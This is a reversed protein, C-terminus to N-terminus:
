RAPDWFGAEEWYGVGALGIIQAVRLRADNKVENRSTTPPDALLDLLEVAWPPDVYGAARVVEPVQFADMHPLSGVAPELLARAVAPEFRAIMQALAADRLLAEDDLLEVTPRLPRLSLAEWLVDRGLVPDVEQLLPLFWALRISASSRSGREDRMRRLEPDAIAESLLKKGTEGGLARAIAAQTQLKLLPENVTAAIRRAAELDIQALRFCVKPARTDRWSVDMRGHVRWDDLHNWVEEAKMADTRALEAAISVGVITFLRDDKLQDLWALAAPLDIPAFAEALYRFVDDSQRQDAPLENAAAEAERAIAAARQRDGIRSFGESVIALNEFKTNPRVGARSLAIAEDLWQRTRREDTMPMYSTAGFTLWRAAWDRPWLPNIGERKAGPSAGPWTLAWDDSAWAKAVAFIKDWDEAARGRMWGGVVNYRAHEKETAHFGVKDLLKIAAMPDSEALSRLASSKEGFEGGTTLADIYPDLTRHALVARQAVTLVSPQAFLPNTPEGSRPLRVDLSKEGGIVVGTLRYGTKKVFLFLGDAPVGELLFKGTRGTKTEVSRHGDRNFVTAGGIPAGQSDTVRGIFSRLRPLVIDEIETVSGQPILWGSRGALLDDAQAVLRVPAMNDFVSRTTFRGADDARLTEENEFLVPENCPLAGPAQIKRWVRIHAGAVPLGATDVVRGKLAASHAVQPQQWFCLVVLWSRTVKFIRRM